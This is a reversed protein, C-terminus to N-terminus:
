SLFLLYVTMIGTDALMHSIISGILSGQRTRLYGWILGAAFVPIIMMVNYPASFLPIVSLLHYLSYFLSTWFIAYSTKRGSSLKHLLYGRWYVEELIPNILILIAILWGTLDGTFQWRTLLSALATPDFLTSSFVYGSLLILLFSLIGTATGVVVNKRNFAFGLQQLSEQLKEERRLFLHYLPILALWGYFLLFALPVSSGIQLGLFLMCTPGFLLFLLKM